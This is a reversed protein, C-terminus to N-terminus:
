LNNGQNKLDLNIIVENDIIEESKFGTKYGDKYAKIEVFAGKEFNSKYLGDKNTTVIVSDQSTYSGDPTKGYSWCVISVEANEITKKSVSDVITGEIQVNKVDNYCSAFLFFSIIILLYKM